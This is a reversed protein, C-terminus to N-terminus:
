NPQLNLLCKRNRSNICMRYITYIYWAYTHTHIDIRCLPPKPMCAQLHRVKILKITYGSRNFITIIKYTTHTPHLSYYNRQFLVTKYSPACM